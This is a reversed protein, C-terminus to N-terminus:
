FIPSKFAILPKSSLKLTRKEVYATGIIAPSILRKIRSSPLMLASTFFPQVAKNIDPIGYGTDSIKIHLISSTSSVFSRILFAFCPSQSALSFSNNSFPFRIFLMTGYGTDSIKIHLQEDEIECEITVIGLNGKYAHVTCNTVAESVATKVDSM